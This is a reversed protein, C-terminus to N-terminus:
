IIQIGMGATVNAFDGDIAATVRINTPEDSVALGTDTFWSAGNGNHAQSVTITSISFFGPNVGASSSGGVLCGIDPQALVTTTCLLLFLMLRYLM